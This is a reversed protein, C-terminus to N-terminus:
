LVEVIVDTDETADYAGVLDISVFVSEGSLESKPTMLRAAPITIKYGNGTTGCTLTVTADTNALADVDFSERYAKVTMSVERAGQVGYGAATDSGFVGRANKAHQCQFSFENFALTVGDIEISVNKGVWERATVPVPTVALINDTTLNERKAGIIDFTASVAENAKGSLSFSNVACGATAEVLAEGASGAKLIALISFTSDTDSGKVKGTAFKGSLASEILPQFVPANSFRLEYSGTASGLGPTSANRTRKPRKTDSAIDNTTFELPAQDAKAPIEYRTADATPTVGFETEPVLSHTIDSPSIFNAM